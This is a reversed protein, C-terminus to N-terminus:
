HILVKLLFNKDQKKDNFVRSSITETSTDKSNEFETKGSDTSDTTLGTTETGKTTLNTVESTRDTKEIGSDRATTKQTSHLFTPTTEPGITNSSKETTVTTSFRVKKSDSVFHFLILCKM